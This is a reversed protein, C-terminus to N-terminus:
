TAPQAAQHVVNAARGRLWTRRCVTWRGDRNDLAPMGLMGNLGVRWRSLVVPEFGLSRLAQQMPEGTGNAAEHAGRRMGDGVLWAAVADAAEDMLVAGAESARAAVDKDVLVQRGRHSRLGEDVQLEIVPAPRLVGFPKGRVRLEDIGSTDERATVWGFGSVFPSQSARLAAALWDAGPERDPHGWRPVSELLVVATAGFEYAADFMAEPADEQDEPVVVRAQIRQPDLRQSVREGLAADGAILLVKDKAM